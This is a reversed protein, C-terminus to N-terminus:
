RDIIKQLLCNLTTVHSSNYEMSCAREQKDRAAHRKNPHHLQIYTCSEYLWILRLYTVFTDNYHSLITSLSLHAYDEKIVFSGEVYKSM